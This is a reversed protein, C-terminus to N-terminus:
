TRGGSATRPARAIGPCLAAMRATRAQAHSGVLTLLMGLADLSADNMLAHHLM